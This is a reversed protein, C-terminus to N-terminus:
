NPRPRAFRGATVTAKDVPAFTNSTSSPMTERMTFSDSVSSPSTMTALLRTSARPASLSDMVVSGASAIRFVHRVEPSPDAEGAAEGEGQRTGEWTGALAKLREFAAQAPTEDAMAGPHLGLAKEFSAVAGEFAQQRYQAMGEKFYGLVEMVNPFSEDTHYDLVEYVSIPQTKGKVIVQDIDRIRYAGRLEQFTHESILIRSRYTKCASELRAALNVADGHTDRLDVAM